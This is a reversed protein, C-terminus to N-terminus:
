NVKLELKFIRFYVPSILETISTIKWKPVSLTNEHVNM